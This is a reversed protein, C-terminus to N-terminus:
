GNKLVELYAAVADCLIENSYDHVYYDVAADLVARMDDTVLLHENALDRLVMPIGAEWGYDFVRNRIIEGARKASDFYNAM